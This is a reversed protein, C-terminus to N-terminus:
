ADTRAALWRAIHTAFARLDSDAEFDARARAGLEQLREVRANLEDLRSEIGCFEPSM